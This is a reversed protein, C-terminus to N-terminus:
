HNHKHLIILKSNTFSKFEEILKEPGHFFHLYIFYVAIVFITLLLVYIAYDNFLNSFSESFNEKEM